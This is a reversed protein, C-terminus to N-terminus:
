PLGDSPPALSPIRRLWLTANGRWLTIALRGFLHKTSHSPDSPNVRQRIFDGIRKITSISGPVWGDLAEVVLPVCEIGAARCSPLNASIKRRVGVELAHGPTVAAEAVTLQQLPSIVAVDLAAQRGRCWNPLLIDAPRANSNPVVGLVEKRPGLAATQAANFLVDRINNHRSIRDGNGGCGVQHDGMIDANLSCEPCQYAKGYLPVVGLWYRLSYRFEQDHIHLGLSGSPVVNLWDGAHPLSSSLVLARSRTGPAASILHDYVAEDISISLPHQRIPVEISDFDTWEPRNAALVLSSVATSMHPSPGPPHGLIREVLPWSRHSSGVFAAPAHLAASRLNIGGRNSPLSAKLQSWQSIPGGVVHELCERMAQDFECSANHIHSPPCTRLIFSLKPLSLCSRLLTTELQSDDLDGLRDLAAKIREVQHLLSAECFSPPGIPCGLVTVGQRTIPIESPLLSIAPDEEQPIFLLSKSRNLSLGLAPGETEVIELAAALDEPSGMLTGDDLYWSNITLKPVETKIREVMSQLTIAFGLPGLPDGQQVGCCSRISYSGLHLLPQTSYCAEMWAAVGPVHRRLEEFMTERNINNFANRFDLLLTWSRNPPTSALLHTVSHIIAECGGKASVGLQLPALTCNATHRSATALCKSIM